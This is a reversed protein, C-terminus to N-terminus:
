YRKFTIALTIHTNILTGKKNGKTLENRDLKEIILVFINFVYKRCMKRSKLPTKGHPLHIEEM